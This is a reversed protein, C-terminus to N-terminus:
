LSAAKKVASEHHQSTLKAAVHDDLAHGTTGGAVLRSGLGVHKLFHLVIALMAVESSRTRDQHEAAAYFFAEEIAFGSVFPWQQYGFVGDGYGIEVGGHKVGEAYGCVM